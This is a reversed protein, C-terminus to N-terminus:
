LVFATTILFSKFFELFCDYMRHCHKSDQVDNKNYITFIEWSKFPAFRRIIEDHVKYNSFVCGLLGVPNTPAVGALLYGIDVAKM